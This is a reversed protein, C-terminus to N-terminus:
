RRSSLTIPMREAAGGYMGSATASSWSRSTGSGSRSGRSRKESPSSSNRRRSARLTTKVGHPRKPQVAGAVEAQLVHGVRCGALAIHQQLDLDREGIPGIELCVAPAVGDQEARRGAGEAVLGASDVDCGSTAHHDRVRRWAARARRARAPLLREALVEERQQVARVGLQQEDGLPDGARVEEGHRRPEGGLDGSQGLREGAAEVAHVDGAHLAAVGDGDDAESRDSQHEARADGVGSSM